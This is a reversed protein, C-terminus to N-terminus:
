EVPRQNCLFKFCAKLVAEGNQNVVTTGISVLVRDNKRAEKATIEFVSHITDGFRVPNVFRLEDIGYFAVVVGPRIPMLAAGVVLILLGHAIREGFPSSAAWERDSHLPYWDGSFASFIVVDAETITRSRSVHRDGVALDGAYKQLFEM